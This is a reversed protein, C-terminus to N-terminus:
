NEFYECPEAYLMRELDESLFSFCCTDRLTYFISSCLSFFNRVVDICVTKTSIGLSLSFICDRLECLKQHFHIRIGVLYNGWLKNLELVSLTKSNGSSLGEFQICAFINKIIPIIDKCLDETAVLIVEDGNCEEIEYILFSNLKSECYQLVILHKLFEKQWECDGNSNLKGQVCVDYM